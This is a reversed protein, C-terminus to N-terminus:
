WPRSAPAAREDLVLRAGATAVVVAADGDAEAAAAVLLAVADDVPLAVLDADRGLDRRDLVVRVAGRADREEVVDVALLAVDERGVAQLDAVRDDRAAVGVDLRAVRHREAVDREPVIIWLM